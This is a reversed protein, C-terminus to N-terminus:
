GRVADVRMAAEHPCATVCAPGTSLNSCLDCVVARSTVLKIEVTASDAEREADLRLSFLVQGTAQPGRPVLVAVVNDGPKVYERAPGFEYKLKGQRPKEETRLAVGNLWVRAQDSPATLELQLRSAKRFDAKAIQFIRRFAVTSRPKYDPWSALGQDLVLDDFFPTADEKWAVDNFGRKTWADDAPAPAFHWGHTAAPVLGTDHMQISGYPCQEACKGCGICWDRILIEKNDGRQISNVPCGIMCVPDLCSRCTAPVLYKGHRPGVLFLRSQGDDHTNVCARVCEDCRTCRDLDILMLKQGEVLGLQEGRPSHLLSRDVSGIRAPSLQRDAQRRQAALQTLRARIKPHRQLVADITAKSIRFLHV